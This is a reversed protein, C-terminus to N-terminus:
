HNAWYKDFAEQREIFKDQGKWHMRARQRRVQRSPEPPQKEEPPTALEDVDATQASAITTALSPNVIGSKM